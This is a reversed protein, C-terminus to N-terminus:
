LLLTRVGLMDTHLGDKFRASAYLYERSWLSYSMRTNIKRYLQKDFPWIVCTCLQLFNLILGSVVFVFGVLLQLIFQSKLWALVGMVSSDAGWVCMCACRHRSLSRELSLVSWLIDLLCSLILRILHFNLKFHYFFIPAISHTCLTLCTQNNFLATSPEILLSTVVVIFFICCLKYRLLPALIGFCM